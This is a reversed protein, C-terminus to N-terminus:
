KTKKEAEEKRAVSAGCNRLLILRVCTNKGLVHLKGYRWLLEMKLNM